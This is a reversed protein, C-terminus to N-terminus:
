LDIGMPQAFDLADWGCHRWFSLGAPNERDVLLLVRVVGRTKLASPSKKVLSRGISKGRNDAAVALHYLFGRRGDHGALVAGVVRDNAIAVQSTGPNRRLYAVLSKLSDGEALEVGEVASWLKRAAALDSEAM